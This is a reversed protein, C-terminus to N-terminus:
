LYFFAAVGRLRLFAAVRAFEKKEHSGVRVQARGFSQQLPFAARLRVGQETFQHFAM